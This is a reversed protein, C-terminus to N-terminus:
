IGRRRGSWSSWSRWEGPGSWVCKEIVRGITSIYNGEDRWLSDHVDLVRNGQDGAGITAQSFGVRVCQERGASRPDVRTGAIRCGNGDVVLSEDRDFEVDGLVAVDVRCGCRAGIHVQENLLAPIMSALGM